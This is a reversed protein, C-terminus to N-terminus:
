TDLSVSSRLRARGRALLKLIRAARWDGAALAAAVKAALEGAECPEGIGAAREAKRVRALLNSM